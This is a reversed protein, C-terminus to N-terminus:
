WLKLYCPRELKYMLRALDIDGDGSSKGPPFLIVEIESTKPTNSGARAKCELTDFLHFM